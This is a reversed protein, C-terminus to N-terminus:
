KFKSRVDHRLRLHKLSFVYRSLLIAVSHKYYFAINKLWPNGARIADRKRAIDMEIRESRPSQVVVDGAEEVVAAGM